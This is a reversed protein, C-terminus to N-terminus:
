ITPPIGNSNYEAVFEDADKWIEQFTKTVYSGYENYGCAGLYEPPPDENVEQYYRAGQSSVVSIFLKRFMELVEETVDTNIRANLTAYNEMKGRKVNSTSQSNIGDLEQFSGTTPATDPNEAHNYFMVTGKSIDESDPDLNLLKSQIALRMKWAPGYMFITQWVKYRFQNEDTDAISSNGYKAYLLYYLTKPLNATMDVPM